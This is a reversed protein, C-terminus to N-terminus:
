STTRKLITWKYEEKQASVWAPLMINDLGATYSPWVDTAECEKIRNILQEAQEQGRGIISDDARYVGVSYPAQKEIAIFIFADASFLKSYVGSQLDYHYNHIARSFAGPSADQTTKVDVVIRGLQPHEGFHDAQGKILMGNWKAQAVCEQEGGHLLECVMPNSACATLMGIFSDLEEPKVVRKGETAAEARFDKLFKRHAEYRRNIPKGDSYFEPEVLYQTKFRQPELIAAHLATGFNMAESERKLKDRWQYHRPSKLMFSLDSQSIGNIAVYEDRTMSGLLKTEITM